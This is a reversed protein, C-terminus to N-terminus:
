IALAFESQLHNCDCTIHISISLIQLSYHTSVNVMEWVVADYLWWPTQLISLLHLTAVCRYITYCLVIGAWHPGTCCCVCGVTVTEGGSASALTCWAKEGGVGDCCQAYNHGSTMRAYNCYPKYTISINSMAM